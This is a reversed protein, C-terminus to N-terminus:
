KRVAVRLKASRSRPNQQQEAEGPLIPKKTLSDLRPDDRFAHKVRRDELSHFSIIALRGGRTLCDPIRQLAVELWKLEENVALRLAQFTRTAPDIRHGTRSRPVCRRVLEALDAATRVPNDRRREVIQKAIRRSYREEGYQYIVDALNDQSLRELLRWAPEGELPNFRLDLPGDSEFSFGRARDDLQDSSLGLDLVCGTVAAVNLQALIEPLDGYNSEVLKVPLGKLNTEAAAIAAPDRDLAIVLGSEGVCKALERTHGGGGLTGDVVVGGEPPALQAVVEAAMVPVHRPSASM